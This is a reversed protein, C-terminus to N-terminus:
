GRRMAPVLEEILAKDQPHRVYLTVFRVKGYPMETLPQIALAFERMTLRGYGTALATLAVSEAGLASARKLSRAILDQVVSGSSQYFGDVAVAHLVVRFGTGCGSTEIVEGRQVFKRDTAALHAQLEKPMADGFRLLIEGGVGGSMTLFVNAPCILVDASATAANGVTVSWRPPTNAADSPMEVM